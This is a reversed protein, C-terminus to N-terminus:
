DTLKCCCSGDELTATKVLSVTSGAPLRRLLGWEDDWLWLDLNLEQAVAVELLAGKSKDWGPLLVVADVHLLVEIDHRLYADRPLDTNGDFAEAPNFVRDGYKDRIAEAVNNFYPYNYDPLGTMPGSLYLYRTGM